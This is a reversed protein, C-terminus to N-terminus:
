PTWAYGFAIAVGIHLLVVLAMVIALPLHFTHWYRFLREFPEVLSMQHSLRRYERAAELLPRGLDHGGGIMRRVRREQIVSRMDFSLAALLARGIGNVRQASLARTLAAAQDETLEGSARMEDLLRAQREELEAMTRFRGHLTKPLRVYVYRGVVGSAVVLTMAWFAIAVLGGIRFSTHLLVLAPGLTCCWIHVSLWDRLRGLGHLRRWRKRLMYSSVGIAILLTGAIGLRNGVRGTPSFLGHLESYAREHLPLVYYDMGWALFFGVVALWSVALAAHLARFRPSAESRPPRLPPPQPRAVPATTTPAPM